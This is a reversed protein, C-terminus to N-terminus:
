IEERNGPSDKVRSIAQSFLYYVVTNNSNRMPLAESVYEFDAVSKLRETFADVVEKNRQKIDKVEGFLTLQKRYAAQKWYDDGWFATMGRGARM